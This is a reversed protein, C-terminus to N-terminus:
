MRPDDSDQSENEPKLDNLLDVYDLDDLEFWDPVAAVSCGRREALAAVVKRRLEPDLIERIRIM